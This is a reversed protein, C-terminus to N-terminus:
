KKSDASGTKSEDSTLAAARAKAAKSKPCDHAVHGKEGCYLCLGEKMRREREETTLKGNKGVKSSDKPKDKSTKSKADSNSPNESRSSNNHKPTSSSNSNSNSNSHSSKADKKPPARSESNAEEKMMWYIEDADQAKMRLAALTNPKGSRLVETRLRLPLGRFYRACLASENWDLKSALKWFEVNYKVIRWNEKMSLETLAKEADGVPDHPGFNSELENIFVPFDWMWHASNTPDMLGPEFWNIAAGKLYSLIFLIKKEDDSFVRPRDRFHLNCSVLFDRLKRPDSGDFTDPERVKVKEPKPASQPQRLSSIGAALDSMVQLFRDDSRQQNDRPEDDNPDDPDGDGDDDGGDPDQPDQPTEQTNDIYDLPTTARDEERSNNAENDVSAALTARPTRPRQTSISEAGSGVPHFISSTRASTGFTTSHRAPTLSSRRQASLVARQSNRTTRTITM